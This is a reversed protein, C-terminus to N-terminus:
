EFQSLGLYPPDQFFDSQLRKTPTQWLRIAQDWQLPSLALPFIPFSFIRGPLPPSNSLFVLECPETEFFIDQRNWRELETEKGPTEKVSAWSVRWNGHPCASGMTSLGCNNVLVTLSCFFVRKNKACDGVTKSMSFTPIGVFKTLSRAESTHNWTSFSTM